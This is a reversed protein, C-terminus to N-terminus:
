ALILTRKKRKRKEKDPDKLTYNNCDVANARHETHNSLKKKKKLIDLKHLCSIM